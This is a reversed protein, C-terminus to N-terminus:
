NRAQEIQTAIDFGGVHAHGSTANIEGSLIKFTTTKGAGNVGLLAFCEGNKIGFSVKDVAVKVQNKRPIFVKRLESVHISFERPDATAIYEQEKAVDDDLPKPVYPVHTEGTFIQTISPLRIVKEVIFVLIFYVLGELSMLLVDGGAINMDYILYAEKKGELTAYTERSSINLIGYGFAFSPILRLVWGIILGADRTSKIFRLILIIM